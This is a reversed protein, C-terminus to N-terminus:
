GERATKNIKVSQVVGATWDGLRPLPGCECNSGGNELYVKVEIRRGHIVGEGVINQSNILTVM